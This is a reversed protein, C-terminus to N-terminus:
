RGASRTRQMAENLYAAERCTKGQRNAGAQNARGAGEAALMRPGNVFWADEVLM